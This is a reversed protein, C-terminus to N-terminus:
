VVSKRDPRNNPDLTNDGPSLFDSVVVKMGRRRGSAALNEIGKALTMDGAANDAVIPETLMSRLLGYLATRGSRAPLRRVSDPRMILGGFRDGMRQSLFGITAVAAIGLDRKTMSVTGWNMSGTVDLLAWVELERDAITERVHPVTTRATVAWDMMRVDDQGPEYPRADNVDAGTGPLLGLHDGHLFGELRRVITLELRRLAAEPALQNLPLTAGTPPSVLTQAVSPPQPDRFTPRTM